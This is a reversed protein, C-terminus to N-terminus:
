VIGTVHKSVAGAGVAPRVIVRDDDAGSLRETGPVRKMAAPAM